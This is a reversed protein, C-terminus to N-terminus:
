GSFGIRIHTIPSIESTVKGVKDGNMRHTLLLGLPVHGTVYKKLYRNLRDAPKLECRRDKYRESLSLGTNVDLHRKGAIFVSQLTRSGV